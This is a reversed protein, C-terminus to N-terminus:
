SGYAVTAVDQLDTLHRLDACATSRATPRSLTGYASNYEGQGVIIPHQGNEFVGSGDLSTPLPRM